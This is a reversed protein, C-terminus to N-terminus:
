HQGNLTLTCRDRTPKSSPFCSPTLDRVESPKELVKESGLIAPVFALDQFKEPNYNFYNNTINDLFFTFAKTRMSPNDSAAIDLIETLPPARRLGLSFVFEATRQNSSYEVAVWSLLKGEDSNPRWQNNAGWDIIPLGLERFIDIPEYLDNARNRQVNPSTGAASQGKEAGEKPFAPTESLHGMEPVTLTSRVSVLYKVLDFTTWDGTEIMRIM